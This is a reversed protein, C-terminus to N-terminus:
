FLNSATADNYSNLLPRTQTSKLKNKLDRHRIFKDRVIAEMAKLRISEWDKPNEIKSALEYLEELQNALSIKKRIHPL